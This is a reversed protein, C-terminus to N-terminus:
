SGLTKFDWCIGYKDILSGHVLGNGEPTIPKNLKADVSLRAFAETLFHNDTDQLSFLPNTRKYFLLATPDYSNANTQASHPTDRLKLTYPHNAHPFPLYAVRIKESNDYPEIRQAKIAFVTEYHTIVDACYGDFELCYYIGPTDSQEHKWTINYTTHSENPNAEPAAICMVPTYPLFSMFPSANGMASFLSDAMSLAVTYAGKQLTLNSQWIMNLGDGSIGFAEANPMETFPHINVSVAAPTYHNIAERATGPYEIQQSLIM